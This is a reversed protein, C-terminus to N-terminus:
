AADEIATYVIKEANSKQGQAMWTHIFNAVNLDNFVPDAAVVRRTSRKRRSM